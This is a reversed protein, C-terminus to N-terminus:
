RRKHLQTFNAVTHQLNIKLHSLTLIVEWPQTIQLERSLSYLNYQMRSHAVGHTLEKRM